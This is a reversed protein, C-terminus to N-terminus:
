IVGFYILMDIGVSLVGIIMLIISLYGIITIITELTDPICSTLMFFSLLFLMGGAAFIYLGLTFLM